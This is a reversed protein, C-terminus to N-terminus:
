DPLNLGEARLLRALARVNPPKLVTVHNGPAHTYVLNPAWRRWADFLQRQKKMNEQRVTKPDDVLVLRSPGQYLSGPRYPTRLAMAFTRLPGRLMDPNSSEPCLNERVLIRHLFGIQASLDLAHFDSRQVGLSRNLTLELITMWEMLVDIQDYELFDNEDEDPVSSDVIIVSEPKYGTQSLKRAMEFVIWGGFSHGLLRLKGDCNMQRINRLYFDAAAQVTSHPVLSGDVGRPQLGYVTGQEGLRSALEFLSVVNDGAGPVCFLPTSKAAGAQLRVIPQYSTELIKPSERSSRLVATSLLDGLASIHPWVMISDNAGQVPIVRIQRGPVLTKWGETHSIDRTGTDAVFCHVPVPIYQASYRGIADEYKQVQPLRHRIQLDTLQDHSDRPLGNETSDFSGRNQPYPTDILGVFNVLQDVGILQSAIEYALIGGKAYGAIRYPGAPQVEQIMRVMRQAMGEITRASLKGSAEHLAYLPINEDIHRALAVSDDHGQPAEALFLPLVTGGERICFAKPPSFRNSETNM